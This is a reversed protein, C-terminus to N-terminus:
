ELVEIISTIGRKVTQSAVDARIAARMVMQGAWAPSVEAQTLDQTIDPWM